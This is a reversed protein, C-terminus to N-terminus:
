AHRVAKSWGGALARAPYYAAYAVLAVDLRGLAALVIWLHWRVDAHGLLRLTGKLRGPERGVPPYGELDGGAPGAWNAVSNMFLFKGMGYAMGLVLWGPRGDRIFASWAIAAHLSCDALEDLNADLWRGFESATGQLRALHGDATDLVLGIALLVATLIQATPGVEGSAIVGAAGIMLTASAVTVANPRIRTPRLVRALTRAPAFAWFRGIPQYLRRRILEDEAGGLSQPRDLRWLVALEPDQGRDLAKRLRDPDYLRDSRLIASGEPPPGNVFTPARGDLLGGFKGHEEARAHVRIEPGGLSAALEVLHLLVPRGGIVEGALPGNPGRPRADIVLPQRPM